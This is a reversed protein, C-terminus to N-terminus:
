ATRGDRAMAIGGSLGPMPITQIQRGVRKAARKRCNAGRKGKRCALAPATDVIRIDNRGRGADLAWLFRGNTTLAGGGPHNGLPALRGYPSLQRGSPQIRTAPGVANPAAALATANVALTLGATALSASLKVGRM